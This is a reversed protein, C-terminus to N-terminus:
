SFVFYLSGWLLIVLGLVSTLHMTESECGIIWLDSECFFAMELAKPLNRSRCILGKRGRIEERYRVGGDVWM